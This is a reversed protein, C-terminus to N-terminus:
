GTIENTGAGPDVYRVELLLGEEPSPYVKYTDLHFIQRDNKLVQAYELTDLLLKHSSDIDRNHTLYLIVLVSVKTTILTKRQRASRILLTAETQWAKAVNRKFVFPRGSKTASAGYAHNQVPPLPLRVRLEESKLLFPKPSDPM